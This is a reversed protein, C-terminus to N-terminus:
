QVRRLGGFMGVEIACDDFNLKAGLRGRIEYGRYSRLKRQEIQRHLRLMVKHSLSSREAIRHSNRRSILASASLM